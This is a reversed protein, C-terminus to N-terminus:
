LKSSQGVPGEVVEGVEPHQGSLRAWWSDLSKQADANEPVYEPKDLHEESLSMLALSKTVDRGAFLSYSGGPGYHEAGATVDIIRGKLSILIRGGDRGDFQRLQGLSLALPEVVGGVEAYKSSLRTWWSELSKKGAETEPLYDPQDLFEPSLDMLALCKTVDRGGFLSYSGGPGYSEAGSTVDLIKGKLSLLIRGGDKGDFKKLQKLTLRLAGNADLPKSVPDGQAVVPAEEGELVAIQHAADMAAATQKYIRKMVPLMAERDADSLVITDMDKMYQQVRSGPHKLGEFVYFAVGSPDLIWGSPGSETDIGEKGAIKGMLYQGGSLVANYQLFHHCLLVKPDGAEKQLAEVYEETARRIGDYKADGPLEKSKNWYELDLELPKKRHLASDFVPALAVENRSSEVAKEIASFMRHQSWVYAGYADRSYSQSYISQMFPHSMTSDHDENTKQLFWSCHGQRRSLTGYASAPASDDARAVKVHAVAPVLSCAVKM